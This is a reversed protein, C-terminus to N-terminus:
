RARARRPLVHLRRVPGVCFVGIQLALEHTSTAHRRADVGDRRAGGGRGRPLRRPPVLRQRRLVPHVDAPLDRAARGVAAAGGRHEPHHPQHGRAAAGLGDRRARGVAAPAGGHAARSTPPAGARTAASARRPACRRLSAVRRLACLLAFLSTASRGAARRCARRRGVARAPVSLRAAGADVRPEVARVASLSQARSVRARVVGAGAPQDDVAPLVAPRDDRALLGLILWAPNERARRSGTRRGPHDAAVRPEAVLLAVHLRVQARPALRRM